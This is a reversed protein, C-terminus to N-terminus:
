LHDSANKLSPEVQELVPKPTFYTLYHKLAAKSQESLLPNEIKIVTRGRMLAMSEQYVPQAMLTKQFEGSALLITLGESIRNALAEQDSAVFYFLASEYSVLLHPEIKLTSDPQKDLEYQIEMVSRPFMDAFGEAVIRFSAQYTTELVPIENHRFIRTDPWDYGQVARMSKLNEFTLPADFRNDDARILMIRKGFFGGMIPIRIARHQKERDISSVSWTIDLMDHELSRLQREQAVEQESVKLEFTGYKDETVELAKFLLTKAYAYVPDRGPHVNPLRLQSHQMAPKSEKEMRPSETSEGAFGSPSSLSSLLLFTSILLKRSIMQGIM